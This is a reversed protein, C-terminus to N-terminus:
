RAASRGFVVYSEGTRAYYYGRNYTHPAGILFDDIGDGNVDGAGSVSFGSHDLEHVGALVFGRSGDGGRAPFLNALSLVAPFGEMSGFVVYTEGARSQGSDESQAGVILDDLGDGNVDGAGSVSTGSLGNEEIGALVFGRSGDGGQAPFLSALPFIAPSGQASGFVVYSEGASDRGGPDAGSAGVILDDIGDGNVDGVGSASGGSHDHEDVGIVVFGHTGDGGHAPFLSTLPLVAPFGQRSGFVVYTEGVHEHGEPGAFPAGVILDAIGDGNVDGAGSVSDGSYDLTDVGGIVFGHSGDGGHGPLLNVLPMLPPFGQTSGFVVFSEGAGRVAGADLDYAGVILDDIGDGNV